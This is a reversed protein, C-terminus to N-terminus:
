RWRLGPPNTRPALMGLYVLSLEGVLAARVLGTASGTSLPHSGTLV